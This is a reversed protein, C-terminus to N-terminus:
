NIFIIYLIQAIFSLALVVLAFYYLITEIYKKSKSQYTTNILDLFLGLIFGGVFGGIHAFNNIAFGTGLVNIGFGFLINIGVFFWLQSTNIYNDISLSYTNKKFKNGILLGVFGFVAASSGVSIPFGGEGGGSYIQLLTYGASFLSGTIGTLVYVIVIKKNGYFTEIAGGLQYLAWMNLVLHFLGAHLFSATVLRWVQGSLIDPIYEAGLLRLTVTQGYLGSLLFSFLFLLINIGMLLTIASFNLKLKLTFEKLSM